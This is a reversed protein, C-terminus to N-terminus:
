SDLKFLTTNRSNYILNNKNNKWSSSMPNKASTKLIILHNVDVIYNNNVSLYWM